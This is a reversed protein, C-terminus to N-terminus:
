AMASSMAPSIREERPFGIACSARWGPMTGIVVCSGSEITIAPADTAIAGDPVNFAPLWDIAKGFPGGVSTFTGWEHTILGEEEPSAQAIFAAITLALAAAIRLLSM